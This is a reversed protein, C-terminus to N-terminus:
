AQMGACLSSSGPVPAAPRAVPLAVPTTRKAQSQRFPSRPLSATLSTGREAAGSVLRTCLGLRQPDFAQWPTFPWLTDRDAELPRRCRSAARPGGTARRGQRSRDCRKSCSRKDFAAYAKCFHEFFDLPLFRRFQLKVSHWRPTCKSRGGCRLTRRRPSRRRATVAASAQCTCM